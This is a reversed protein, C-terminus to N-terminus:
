HNRYWDPQKRHRKPYTKRAGSNDARTANASGTAAEPTQEPTSGSAGPTDAPDANTTSEESNESIM